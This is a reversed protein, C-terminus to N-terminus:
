DPGKGLGFTPFTADNLSLPKYIGLYTAQSIVFIGLAALITPKSMVATGDLQTSTTILGAAASLLGTIFQKLIVPLNYKTFVGVIIPIVFSMILMVTGSSVTFPQEATVVVDSEAHAVPTAVGLVVVALVFPAFLKKFFAKM